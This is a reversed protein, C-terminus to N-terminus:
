LAKVEPPSRDLDQKMVLQNRLPLRFPEASIHMEDGGVLRIGEAFSLCSTGLFHVHVDGPKRFQAYKFHHHELNSISHSMNAEGTLFEADWILENGRHIQCRGVIETPLDGVLLEPGLACQRLKSHALYLYNQQEMVHDSFENGLAFGLRRPAGTKDNFYVGALEPEEGGDLAFRPCELPFGSARIISGDGKYFWEPQVGPKEGGPKGGEIGLRFMRMSDTEVTEESALHMADRSDASGLHTLGTGTVLLHAPDPHDIPPLLRQELLLREPDVTVDSVKELAYDILASENDVAQQALELITTIGHLVYTGADVNAAVRRAGTGDVYQFLLLYPQTM